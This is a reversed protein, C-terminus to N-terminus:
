SNTGNRDELYYRAYCVPEGNRNKGTEMVKRVQYGARRIESIRSRLETTGFATLMEGVTVSGHEMMYDLANQATPKLKTM